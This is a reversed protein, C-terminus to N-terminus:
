EEGGATKDHGEGCNNRQRNARIWAVIMFALAYAEAIMLVVAPYFMINDKM